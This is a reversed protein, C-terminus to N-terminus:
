TCHRLVGGMIKRLLILGNFANTRARRMRYSLINGKFGQTALVAKTIKFQAYSILQHLDPSVNDSTKHLAM